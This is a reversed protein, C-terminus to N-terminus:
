EPPQWNDVMFGRIKNERLGTVTALLERGYGVSEPHSKHGTFADAVASKSPGQLSVMTARLIDSFPIDRRVLDILGTQIATLSPNYAASEITSGVVVEGRKTLLAVGECVGTFPAFARGAADLALRRMDNDSISVREGEADIRASGSLDTGHSDGGSSAWKLSDRRERLPMRSVNSQRDDLLGVQVGLDKPTFASPLLESLRAEVELDEGRSLRIMVGTGVTEALFQRCHGCPPYKLALMDLGQARGFFLNTVLFQEAHVTCSLPVADFELNVGFYVDGSSSALGAVGVQFGSIACRSWKEVVGVCLLLLEPTTLGLQAELQERDARMLRMGRRCNDNLFRAVRATASDFGLSESSSSSRSHPSSSCSYRADAHECGCGVAARRQRACIASAIGIGAVAALM